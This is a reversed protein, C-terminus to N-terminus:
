AVLWVVVAAALAFRYYAFVDLSHNGLYRILYKVAAYGVIGSIVAGVLYLSADFSDVGVEGVELGKKGAVAVVAPVSMLFTFRAAAERRIGMLMALTITTGSRSLGPVLAAAQGCGIVFAESLTIEEAGRSGRRLREAVMMGVAGLSLTVACVAATRFRQELVDAALLGVIIIPITGVIIRRVMRSREDDAGSLAGPTAMLLPWLEGRFYWLVAALTGVHCAVDFAVGFLAADWGFFARALILHASSSIPLFETLGQVTGLLAAFLYSM